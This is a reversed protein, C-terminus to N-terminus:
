GLKSGYKVKINIWKVGIKIWKVKFNIWIKGQNEDM